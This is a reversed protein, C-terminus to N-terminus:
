TWMEPLLSCKFLLFFHNNLLITFIYNWNLSWYWRHLDTVFNVTGREVLGRLTPQGRFFMLVIWSIQSFGYWEIETRHVWSYTWQWRSYSHGSSLFVQRLRGGINEQWEWVESSLVQDVGWKFHVRYLDGRSMAREIMDEKYGRGKWEAGPRKM